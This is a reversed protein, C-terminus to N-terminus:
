LLDAANFEKTSRLISSNSSNSDYFLLYIADFLAIILQGFMSQTLGTLLRVISNQFHFLVWFGSRRPSLNCLSTSSDSEPNRVLDLVELLPENSASTRTFNEWGHCTRYKLMGSSSCSREFADIVLGRELKCLKKSKDDVSERVPVNDAIVLLKYIVEGKRVIDAKRISQVFDDDGRIRALELHLKSYFKLTLKKLVDINDKSRLAM